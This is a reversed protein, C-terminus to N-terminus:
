QDDFVVSSDHDLDLERDIRKLIEPVTRRRLWEAHIGNLM